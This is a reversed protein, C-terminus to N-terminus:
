RTSVTWPEAAPIPAERLDLCLTEIYLLLQSRAPGPPLRSWAETLRALESPAATAAEAGDTMGMLAPVSTGLVRAVYYLKCALLGTDGKEYKQVQQYSVGLFKAFDKQTMRLERRRRRIRAGVQRNFAAFEEAM